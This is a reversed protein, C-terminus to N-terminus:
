PSFLGADDGPRRLDFNPSTWFLAPDGGDGPLLSTVGGPSMNVWKALVTGYVDRFDTSRFGGYADQRYQTNEDGDLDTVNPHNGYVGGNM